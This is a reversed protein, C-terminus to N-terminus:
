EESSPVTPRGTPLDAQIAVVGALVLAGGILIGASLREDLVVVGLVVTTVPEATTVVSARSAEVVRLGNVFLLIPAVTGVLALGVIIGWQEATAPVFLTDSVVGYAVMCAGTTAMAATALQDAAVTEVAVRSGVTYAAYALAAVTVLALGRPDAAGADLGVILAVGSLTLVLAAVKPATLREDLLAASVAYVYVPYTYLTIVALGAPVYALGWFFAGTLVAYPVGLGVMTALARRDPITTSGTLRLYGLLLATALAFRTSLLTPENLGAATALKGFIGITGFGVAALLVMGLGSTRYM